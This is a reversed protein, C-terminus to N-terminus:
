HSRRVLFAYAPWGLAVMGLGMAADAPASVVQNTVIAFASVAFVLPVVPHAPARYPGIPGQRRRLILAVALVGFFIWETYIVRVFLERYSGTSVLVSAWVAQLVIARHPTRYRQHVEGLSSFLLGDRAMAYYVRPGALVIGSLAGLTSFVVLGSMMAGGGAGLVADAADAAVRTSSAVTDIPLVYFYVANLLIYCGSVLLTGTVLARPITTSPDFTEDANYTVMHWGGFAFLGAVLALAFDGPSVATDVFSSRNAALALDHAQSGLALGLVIVVAIAALKGATFAAQLDSGHRVGRYNVASLAVIVLIAVVKVGVDGL